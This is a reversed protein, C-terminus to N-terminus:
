IAGASLGANLLAVVRRAQARDVRGNADKIHAPHHFQVTATVVIAAAAAAEVSALGSDEFFEVAVDQRAVWVPLHHSLDQEALNQPALIRRGIAADIRLTNIKEEDVLTAFRSM